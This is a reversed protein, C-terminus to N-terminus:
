RKILRPIENEGLGDLMIANKAYDFAFEINSGAGIADYFATSFSIAAKDSITYNMGVVYDIHKAIEKAQAESYCANLVVCEINESFLSFLQGLAKANVIQSIGSDDELVLGGELEPQNSILNKFYTNDREGHGSFHVINPLDSLLSRRLDKPRTAFRQLLDFKDRLKSRLLGEGIDRVEAGLRLKGTDTPNSAFFLITKKILSDITDDKINKVKSLKNLDVGELLEKVKIKKRLKAIFLEEVEEEQCIILEEYDILIGEYPIKQNIKLAKFSSHIDDLHFRLNGLLEKKNFRGRISVSLTLNTRDAVIFALNDDRHIIMGDRWYKDGIIFKHLKVILRSIISSPLIDYHYQFQLTGNFDWELNEPREASFANPIFIKRRRDQLFYCLEFKEMLGVLFLHQSRPFRDRKLIESLRDISIIGRQRALIPSNIIKYVGQTVWEPNLVQTQELEIEERFNLVIGLNHLLSVLASMSEEKFGPEVEQCIEIYKNYSIFDEKIKSLRNKITFYSQPIPKGLHPLKEIALKVNETLEIIGKGNVCSTEVFSLINPFNILYSRKDLSHTHVDCKNIAVIIPSDPAFSQVLKLWYSLETEGYRDEERPTVVVVYVSNETMFFKHTAHMIEQGGFDWIHVDIDTKGSIRWDSIAIGETKLEDPNFKGEVITNILSTKGVNGSGIFILKAEFLPIERDQIEAAKFDEIQDIITLISYMIRNQELHIEEERVIGLIAKERIENYRASLIILEKQFNSTELNELLYEFAQKVKAEAILRRVRDKKISM